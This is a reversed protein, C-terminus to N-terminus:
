AASQLRRVAAAFGAPDDLRHAVATTRGIPRCLDILVNPYALLSLKLVGPQKLVGPEWHLRVDAIDGVPVTVSRLTGIRLVLVQRDLTVPLRKMSAIVGIFWVLSAVTLLTIVIAAIRGLLLALLLHGVVLEIGALALFVWLM